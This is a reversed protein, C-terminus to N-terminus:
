SSIVFPIAVSIRVEKEVNNLEDMGIVERCGHM